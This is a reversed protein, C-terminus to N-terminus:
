SEVRRDSVGTRRCPSDLVVEDNAKSLPDSQLERSGCAVPLGGAQSAAGLGAEAAGSDRLDM